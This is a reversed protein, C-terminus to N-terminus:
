SYTEQQEQRKKWVWYGAALLIVLLAIPLFDVGQQPASVPFNNQPASCADYRTKLSQYERDLEPLQSELRQFNAQSPADALKQVQVWKSKISDVQAGLGCARLAAEGYYVSEINPKIENLKTIIAVESQKYAFSALSSAIWDDREGELREIGKAPKQFRLNEFLDVRLRLGELSDIINKNDQGPISSKFIETQKATIASNYEDYAALFENSKEFADKYYAVLANLSLDSFDAEFQRELGAGDSVIIDLELIEQSLASAKSTLELFSVEPYDDQVRSELASLTDQNQQTVQLTQKVVPEWDAFSLKNKKVFEQLIGYNFAATGIQELTIEDTVIEGTYDSVAVFIKTSSYISPSYIWYYDAGSNLPEPLPALGSDM